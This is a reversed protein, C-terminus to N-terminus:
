APNSKTRSWSYPLCGRRDGVKEATVRMERRRPTEDDDRETM